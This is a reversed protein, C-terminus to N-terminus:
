GHLVQSSQLLYRLAFTKAPPLCRQLFIRFTCKEASVNRSIANKALMRERRGRVLPARAPSTIRFPSKWIRPMLAARRRVRGRQKKVEYKQLM